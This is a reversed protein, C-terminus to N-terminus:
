KPTLLTSYTEAMWQNAAGGANPHVHDVTSYMNYVDAVDTGPMRASHNIFTITPDADAVSKMMLVYDSYLWGLSIGGSPNFNVALVIPCTIGGGRLVAIFAQLQTKINALSVGGAGDNIGLDQLILLDLNLSQIDYLWSGDTAYGDQWDLIKMGSHGLNHVQIGANEDGAYETIGTFILYGGNGTSGVEISTTAASAVHLVSATATAAFTSFTVAAGGDIKYYGTGALGAPGQAHHIDFSTVPSALTDIIKPFANGYYCVHKAGLDFASAAGNTPPDLLGGSMALPWMGSIYQASTILESSPVGIFGRGGGTLSAVPFRSRLSTMLSQAVTRSYTSVFAGEVLSAGLIGIDARSNHRNSLAAYWSRLKTYDTLALADRGASTLDVKSADGAIRASAEVSLASISVFASASPVLASLSQETVLRKNTPQTM